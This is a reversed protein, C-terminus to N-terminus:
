RVGSSLSYGAAQVGGPAAPWATYTTEGLIPLSTRDRADGFPVPTLRGPQQALLDASRALTALAAPSPSPASVEVAEASAGTDNMALESAGTSATSPKTGSPADLAAFGLWGVLGAAAALAVVRQLVPARRRRQLPEDSRARSLPGAITAPSPAAVREAALRGRVGSWLDLGAPVEARLELLARRAARAREVERACPACVALHDLGRAFEDGDLDRGVLLPLNARLETCAPPLTM